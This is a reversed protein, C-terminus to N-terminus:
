QDIRSATCRISFGSIKNYPSSYVGSQDFYFMRRYAKGRNYETASWWVGKVGLQTFGGGLHYRTGGPLGAFGSENTAGENPAYWLGTDAGKTGTSKMKGGEDTGRWEYQKDAEEQSMGLYKELTKWEADTPVHWGAPCVNRTDAVAYWNYLKGYPDEYLENNDYWCWAGIPPNWWQIDDTIHLIDDGNQYKTTRLNEVMWKQTGIVKTTYTNGDIDTVSGFCPDCSGGCDLGTEDGNQIGDSCTAAIGVCNCDADFKDNYTNVNGDDCATGPTCNIEPLNDEECGAVILCIPVATILLFKLLITTNTKM